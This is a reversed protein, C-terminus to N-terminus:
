RDRAPSNAATPPRNDTAASALAGRRHLQHKGDRLDPQGDLGGFNAAALTGFSLTGGYNSYDLMSGQLANANGLLLTGGSIATNGFFTNATALTLANGGLKNLGGPGSLQGAFTVAYGATDVNANGGSGTLTMPLTTSFAASAQLTGGGFNFDQEGPVNASLQTAVLIGGNLNYTGQISVGGLAENTGGTQTFTGPGVRGILEAPAISPSDLLGSSLLYTGDAGAHYGLSLGYTTTVTGGSQTFYGNGYWGVGVRGSLQATGSISYSGIGGGAANGAGIEIGGPSNTGGTQVFNGAGFDGVVEEATVSLQGGALSYSGNDLAGSGLYLSANTM